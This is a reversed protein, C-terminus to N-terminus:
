AATNRGVADMLHTKAPSSRVHISHALMEFAKLPVATAPGTTGSLSYSQPLGNMTM